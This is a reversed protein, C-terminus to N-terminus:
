CLLLLLGVIELMGYCPESVMVLARFTLTSCFVTILEHHKDHSNCNFSFSFSSRGMTLHEGRFREPM